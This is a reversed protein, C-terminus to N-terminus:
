TIEEEPVIFNRCLYKEAKQEKEGEPSMPFIEFRDCRNNFQWKWDLCSNSPSPHVHPCTISSDRWRSFRKRIDEPTPIKM